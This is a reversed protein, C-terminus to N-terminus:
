TFDLGKVDREHSIYKHLMCRSHVHGDRSIMIIEADERLRRIERAASIGAASSGIIVHRM